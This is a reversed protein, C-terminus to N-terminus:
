TSHNCRISCKEVFYLLELCFMIIRNQLYTTSILLSAQSFRKQSYLFPFNNATYCVVICLARRDTMHCFGPYHICRWRSIHIYLAYNYKNLSHGIYAIISMLMVVGLLLFSLNKSQPCLFHLVTTSFYLLTCYIKSM